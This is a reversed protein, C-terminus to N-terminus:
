VVTAFRGRRDFKVSECLVRFDSVAQRLSPFEFQRYRNRLLWVVVDDRTRPAWVFSRGLSL